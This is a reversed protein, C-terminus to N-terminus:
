AFRHFKFEQLYRQLKPDSEHEKHLHVYHRWNASDFGWHCTRSETPQHSHCVFKRISILTNCGRCLVCRSNPRLYLAPILLGICKGFCRHRILFTLSGKIMQQIQHLQLPFDNLVALRLDTSLDATLSSIRVSERAQSMDIVYQYEAGSSVDDLRLRSELDVEPRQKLHSLHSIYAGPFLYLPQLLLACLREADSKTILGCSPADAPLINANKLENLQEATCLGNNIRLESCRVNIQGFPFSSLVTNLIHPFCLRQEGSVVFCAIPQNELLTTHMRNSNSQLSRLQKPTVISHQRAKELQGTSSTRVSDVTSANTRQSVPCDSDDVTVNTDEDKKAVAREEEEMVECKVVREQKIIPKVTKQSLDIMEESQLMKPTYRDLHSSPPPPLYSPFKMMEPKSFPSLKHFSPMLTVANFLQPLFNPGSMSNGAMEQYSKLLNQVCVQPVMTSTLAASPPPSVSSRHSAHSTLSDSRSRQDASEASQTSSCSDTSAALLVGPLRSITTHSSVPANIPNQKSQSFLHASSSPPQQHSSNVTSSKLHRDITSIPSSPRATSLDSQHSPDPSVRLELRGQLYIRHGSLSSHM